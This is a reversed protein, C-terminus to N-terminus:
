RTYKPNECVSLKEKSLEIQSTMSEPGTVTMGSKSKVAAADLILSPVIPNICYKLGVIVKEKAMSTYLSGKDVLLTTVNASIQSENISTTV